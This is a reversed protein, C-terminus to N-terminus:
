RPKRASSPAPIAPTVDYACRFGVTAARTTTLIHRSAARMWMAGDEFSGGRIVRGLGSDAGKPNTEPASGYGFGDKDKNYWDSVWEAVNGALNFIHEPTQGDPFADVPALLQYGDRPDSEESGFSGHNCIRANYLNGWPFARGSTGRAAYEWEAETPLRGGAFSCFATADNWSVFSVPLNPQDFRPDGPQFGAPNCRGTTVCAGYQAVSVEYRDLEFSSLTVKHRHGEARLMNEIQVCLPAYAEKRCLALGQQMDLAGSGMDFTGAPLRVRSTRAPTLVQVSPNLPAPAAQPAATGESVIAVVDAFPQFPFLAV